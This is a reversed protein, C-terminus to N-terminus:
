FSGRVERVLATTARRQPIEFRFRVQGRPDITGVRTAAAGVQSGDQDALDFVLEAGGYRVRSNNRLM